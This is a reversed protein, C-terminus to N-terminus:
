AETFAAARELLLPMLKDRWWDLCVMGRSMGGENFKERYVSPAPDDLDVEALEAFTSRLLRDVEEPSDPLDVEALHEKMAYWLPPDGRLGWPHPEPEFLVAVKVITM